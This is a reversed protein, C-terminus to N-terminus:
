NVLLKRKRRVVEENLYGAYSVWGLYPAMLRAAAPDVARTQLMYAGITAWLAVLDALAAGAKHRTFFLRTWNAKLALQTGWLALARTRQASPPQRIVRWGSAVALAFLAVSALASRDIRGPSRGARLSAGLGVALTFLGTLALLGVTSERQEASQTAM